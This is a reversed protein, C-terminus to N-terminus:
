GAIRFGSDAIRQLLRKGTIAQLRDRKMVFATVHQPEVLARETGILV